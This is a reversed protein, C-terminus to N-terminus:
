IAATAAVSNSDYRKLWYVVAEAVNEPVVDRVAAAKPRSSSEVHEPELLELERIADDLSSVAEQSGTEYSLGLKVLM